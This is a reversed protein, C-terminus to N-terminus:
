QRLTYFRFPAALQGGGTEVRVLAEWIMKHHSCVPLVAEGEYVGPERESLTIRNYGMDMNVGTIEVAVSSPKEGDLGVRLRLPKLLPLERPEISFQIAGDDPIQSTCPGARLDCSLDLPLRTEGPPEELPNWLTGLVLLGVLALVAVANLLSRSLLRSTM